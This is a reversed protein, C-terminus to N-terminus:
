GKLEDALASLASISQLNVASTIKVRTPCYEIGACGELRKEMLKGAVPAWSGNEIIGVKKNKFNREVLCDLFERMYPFLDGNYTVCALVVKDYRFAKAVTSSMDDRNLDAVVVDKVGRDGLYGSLLRAADMTHGYASSVAILVGDRDSEYRSWRDYASIYRDIEKEIVKGHLPLIAKVDFKALKALVSQVQAGYKGVIGFYYRDAQEDWEDFDEPRGFSGFADASFVSGSKLEYSMMVEPWHVMPAMVFRLEHSGLSLTGGETAEITEPVCDGFFGQIMSFARKSGVVAVDPYEKLFASLGACHDPEMHHVVLYDPKRGGLAKKLNSLWEDVFNKDVTDMVAIKEDMIVYSNYTIGDPIKYQGEFLDTSDDFVGVKLIDRDM